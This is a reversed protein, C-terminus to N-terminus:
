GATSPAAPGVTGRGAPRVGALSWGRRGAVARALLVVSMVAYPTLQALTADQLTAFSQAIGIALAALLAGTMNGLGGTVVVIFAPVLATTELNTSVAGQPAIMVGGLAGLGIGVAFVASYLRNVDVGLVSLMERDDVAARTLLGARTRYLGVWIAVTVGLGLVITVVTYQTIRAGLVSWSGSLFVPLSVTRFHTGFVLVIAGAILYSLALTLMFQQNEDEERYTRRLLAVEAVAGLVAVALPVVILAAMWGLAGAGLRAIVSTTLYAGLMYVAGAAFNMVGLVGWVLNLGAATFFLVFALGLGAFLQDIFTALSM